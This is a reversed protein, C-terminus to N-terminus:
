EKKTKIKEEKDKDKWQSECVAVRQAVNPFENTMVMDSMCRSIFASKKEEKHPKALPM